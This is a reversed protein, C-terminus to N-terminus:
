SEIGLERKIGRVLTASFNIDNEKALLDLWQPITVSKRVYIEKTINRYYPLWIHIYVANGEQKSADPLAINKNEYELIELALAEQAAAIAEDFSYACTNLEPFDFFTVDYVGERLEIHAPYTYNEKM